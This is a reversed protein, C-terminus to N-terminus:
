EPIVGTYSYAGESTYTFTVTFGNIDAGATGSDFDRKFKAKKIFKTHGNGDTIWLAFKGNVMNRFLNRKTATDKDFRCVIQGDVSGAENQPETHQCTDETFEFNYSVKTAVMVINSSIVGNTAAPITLVDDLNAVNLITNGPVNGGCDHVVAALTVVCM